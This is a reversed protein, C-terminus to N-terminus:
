TVTYSYPSSSEEPWPTLGTSSVYLWISAAALYYAPLVSNTWNVLFSEDLDLHTSSGSQEPAEPSIGRSSSKCNPCEGNFAEEAVQM